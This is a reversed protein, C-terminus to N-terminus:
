CSKGNLQVSTYNDLFNGYLTVYVGGNTSYTPDSNGSNAGAILDTFFIMPPNTAYASGALWLLWFLLLLLKGM